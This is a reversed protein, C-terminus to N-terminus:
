PTALKGYGVLGTLIFTFAILTPINVSKETFIVISIGATFGVGSFILRMPQDTINKVLM